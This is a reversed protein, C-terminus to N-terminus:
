LVFMRVEAESARLTAYGDVETSDLHAGQIMIRVREYEARRAAEEAAMEERRAAFPDLSAYMPNDLLEMMNHREELAPRYAGGAHGESRAQKRHRKRYYHCYWFLLWLLLVALAIILWIWWPLGTDGLDTSAGTTLGSPTVLLEFGANDSGGPNVAAITVNFPAEYEASQPGSNRRRGGNPVILSASPWHLHGSNNLTMDAPGSVLIWSVNRASGALEFQLSLPQGAAVTVNPNPISDRDLSPKEYVDLTLLIVDSSVSNRVTLRYFGPSGTNDSPSPWSLSGNSPQVSLGDPLSTTGRSPDPSLSWTFPGTGAFPPDPAYVFARGVGIVFALSEVAIEPTDMVFLSFSVEDLGIENSLRVIVTVFSGSYVPSSWLLAGSVADISM